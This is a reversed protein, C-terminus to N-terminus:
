MNCNSYRRIHGCMLLLGTSLGPYDGSACNETGGTNGGRLTTQELDWEQPFKHINEASVQQHITSVTCLHGRYVKYESYVPLIHCYKTSATHANSVTSISGTSATDAVCFGLTSRTCATDAKEFGSSSPLVLLIYLVSSRFVALVRLILLISGQFAALLIKGRFHEVNSGVVPLM